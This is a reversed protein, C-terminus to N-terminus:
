LYGYAKMMDGHDLIMQDVQRSTLQNKWDGVVGKRFFCKAHYPKERFGNIQELRQLRHFNSNKLAQEIQEAKFDLNLFQAAQTFTRLPHHKM